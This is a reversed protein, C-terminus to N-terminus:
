VKSSGKYIKPELWDQPPQDDQNQSKPQSSPQPRTPVQLQPLPPPTQPKQPNQTQSPPQTSQFPFFPSQGMGSPIPSTTAIRPPQRRAGNQLLQGAIIFANPSIVPNQFRNTAYDLGALFNSATDDKVALGLQDLFQYIIESLSSAEQDIISTAAFTPNQRRNFAIIPTDNFFSRQSEYLHDLEELRTIGLTFILDAQAGRFSYEITKPDPAKQGAKPSIILEFRDQLSDNLSVKDIHQPNYSAFNIVLNRNGLKDSIHNLGVLRSFETRLQTPTVVFVEKGQDKLVLFLGLAAAVHDVSANQGFLIFITKAKDFQSKIPALDASDAM